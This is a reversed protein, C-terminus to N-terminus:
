ISPADDVKITIKAGPEFADADDFLCGKGWTEGDETIRAYCTAGERKGGKM